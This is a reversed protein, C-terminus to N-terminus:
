NEYMKILPIKTQYKVTSMVFSTRIKGINKLAILKHLLFDEYCQMNEVIVKLIFDDEGSIHYCELVEPLDEISKRFNKVSNASHGSMSISIFAITEKGVKAPNLLVVKKSIIGEQEMKKVRDFVTTPSLSLKEALDANTISSNEQLLDLIKKNIDDIKKM